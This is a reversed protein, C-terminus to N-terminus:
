KIFFKDTAVEGNESIIQIIYSGSAKGNLFPFLPIITNGKDLSLEILSIEAGISNYIKIRIFSSQPSYISLNTESISTAPNPTIKVSLSLNSRNVNVVNSYEFYGNFDITKLRYYITSLESTLLDHHSYKQKMPSNGIAKISAIGSFNIGDISREIEFKETNRESSTSWELHTQNENSLKAEFYLLTVPLSSFTCGSSACAASATQFTINDVVIDNGKFLDGVISVQLCIPVIATAPAQWYCAHEAWDDARPTSVYGSGLLTGNITLGVNLINPEADTCGNRCPGAPYVASCAGGSKFANRYYASFRYIQGATVSVSTCWPKTVAAAADVLLMGSGEVPTITNSWCNNGCSATAGTSLEGANLHGCANLYAYDTTNLEAPAPNCPLTACNFKGVTGLIDGGLTCQGQILGPSAIVMIVTITMIIIMKM